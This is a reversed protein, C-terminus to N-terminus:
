RERAIDVPSAAPPPGSALVGIAEGFLPGLAGPHGGGDIWRDLAAGAAGVAARALVHPWLEVAADVGARRALCSAITEAWRSQAALVRAALVPSRTALRLMLRYREVDAEILDALARAAQGLAVLPPESAPRALLAAEVTTVLRGPDGELVEDKSAFHRFFTRESVGAAAAVDAATVDDFGRSAFLGFAAEQLARRTSAGSRGAATM